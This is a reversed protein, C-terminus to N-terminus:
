PAQAAGKGGGRCFMMGALRGMTSRSCRRSRTIGGCSVEWKKQLEPAPPSPASPRRRMAAGAYCADWAVAATAAAREAFALMLRAGADRCLRHLVGDLNRAAVRALLVDDGKVHAPARAEHQRLGPGFRHAIGSRMGDPSSSQCQLPPHSLGQAPCGCPAYWPLVYPAMASVVELVTYRWFKPGKGLPARLPYFPADEVASHRSLGPRGAGPKPDCAAAQPCSPAALAAALNGAKTAGRCAHGRRGVGIAQVALRPLRRAAQPILDTSSSSSSLFPNPQQWRVGRRGVEKHRGRTVQGRELGGFRAARRSGRGERSQLDGGVHRGQALGILLPLAAAPGQLLQLPHELHVGRGRHAAARGRRPGPRAPIRGALRKGHVADAQWAASLVLQPRGAVRGEPNEGPRLLRGGDNQLRDQPLAAEQRRGGAEQRRQAAQAVRVAHQEDKVLDTQRSQSTAQSGQMDVHNAAAAPAKCAFLPTKNTTAATGERGLGQWGGAGEDAARRAPASRRPACPASTPAGADSRRAARCAATQWPPASPLVAMTPTYSDYGEQRMGGLQRQQEEGRPERSTAAAGGHLANGAAHWKGAHRRPRLQVALHRGAHHHTPTLLPRNAPTQTPCPTPLVHWAM